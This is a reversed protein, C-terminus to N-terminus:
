YIGGIPGKASTFTNPLTLPNPLTGFTGTVSGAQYNTSVQGTVYKQVLATAGNQQFAIFYSRNGSIQLPTVFPISQYLSAGASLTGALASNALLNGDFDYLAVILNDTGVTGGNLLVIGTAPRNEVVKIQSWYVTGSVSAASSPTSGPAIGPTASMTPSADDMVFIANSFPRSSDGTSTAANAIWVTANAPHFQQPTGLLGRKVRYTGTVAANGTVQFAEGNIFFYSGAVSSALSPTTVNTSSAVSVLINNGSPTLPISVTLTTSALLPNSIAGVALGTPNSM